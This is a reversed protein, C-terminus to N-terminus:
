LTAGHDVQGAHCENISFTFREQGSHPLLACFKARDATQGFANHFLNRFGAM